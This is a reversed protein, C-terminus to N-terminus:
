SISDHASFQLCHRCSLLVCSIGASKIEYTATSLMQCTGHGPSVFVSKPSAM